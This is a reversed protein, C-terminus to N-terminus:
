LLHHVVRAARPLYRYELATLYVGFLLYCAEVAAPLAEAGAEIAAQSSRM